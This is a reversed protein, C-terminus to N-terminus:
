RQLSGGTKDPRQYAVHRVDHKHGREPDNEIRPGGLRGFINFTTGQDKTLYFTGAGNLHNGWYGSGINNTAGPTYRGTPAM